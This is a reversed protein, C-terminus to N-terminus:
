GNAGGEEAQVQPSKRWFLMRRWLRRLLSPPPPPPSPEPPPPVPKQIRYSLLMKATRAPRAGLRFAMFVADVRSGAHITAAKRSMGPDAMVQLSHVVSDMFTRFRKREGESISPAVM